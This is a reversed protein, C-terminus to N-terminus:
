CLFNNRTVTNPCLIKESKDAGTMGQVFVAKQLTQSEQPDWDIPVRSLVDVGKLRDPAPHPPQHDGAPDPAAAPGRSSHGGSAGFLHGVIGEQFFNPFTGQFM